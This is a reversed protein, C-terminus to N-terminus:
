VIFGSKISLAEAQEPNLFGFISCGQGQVRRKKTHSKLKQKHTHLPNESTHKHTHTHTNVDEGHVSAWM